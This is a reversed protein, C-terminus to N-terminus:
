NQLYNTMSKYIDEVDNTTPCCWWWCGDDGDVMRMWRWRADVTHVTTTPRRSWCKDDETATTLRSRGRRRDTPRDHPGRSEDEGVVSTSSPRCRRVDEVDVPDGVVNTLQSTWRCRQPRQRVAVLRSFPFSDCSSRPQKM